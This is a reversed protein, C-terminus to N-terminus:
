PSKSFMPFLMYFAPALLAWLLVKGYSCQYADLDDRSNSKCVVPPRLLVLILVAVAYILAAVFWRSSRIQAWVSTQKTTEGWRQEKLTPGGGHPSRVSPFKNNMPASSSPHRVMTSRAQPISIGSESGVMSVADISM